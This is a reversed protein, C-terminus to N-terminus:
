KLRQEYLREYHDLCQRYVPLLREPLEVQKPQYPRFGTSKEVEAYWHKAWVGDTARPGPPWALMAEQFEVGLADCLMGLMRRPNKLVDASDLVPPVRGTHSCVWDFIETQQPFGTDALEPTEVIKVYSALMERPHRILFCNTVQGLWGRDVEPLLHHTMHKQYFLLGRAGRPVSAFFPARDQEDIPLAPESRAEPGQPALARSETLFAVVKRWDTEGAAIVEAAGPHPKSTAALYYAYFPEDCVVTDERNGWSRMM